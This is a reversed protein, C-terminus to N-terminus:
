KDILKILLTKIENLENEISSVKNSLEINSLANKKSMLYQEYSSKDTNIIANSSPDRKLNHM